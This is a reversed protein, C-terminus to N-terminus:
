RLHHVASCQLCPLTRSRDGPRRGDRGAPLMVMRYGVAAGDIVCRHGRVPEAGLGAIREGFALQGLHESACGVPPARALIASARLTGDAPSM